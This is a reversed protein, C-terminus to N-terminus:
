EYKNDKNKRVFIFKFIKKFGMAIGSIVSMIIQFFDSGSSPNIYAQATGQWIILLLLTFVILRVKSKM